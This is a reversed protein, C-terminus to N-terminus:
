PQRMKDVACWAILNAVHKELTEVRARIERQRDLSDFDPPVGLPPKVMGLGARRLEVNARELAAHADILAARLCLSADHATDREKEMAIARAEAKTWNERADDREREAEALPETWKKRAIELLRGGQELLQARAAALAEETEILKKKM